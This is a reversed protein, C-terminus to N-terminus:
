EAQRVALHSWSVPRREGDEGCHLWFAPMEESRQLLYIGRRQLTVELRAEEHLLDPATEQLWELLEEARWGEAGLRQPGLVAENMEVSHEPYRHIVALLCIRLNETLRLSLSYPFRATGSVDFQRKGAEWQNQIPKQEMVM